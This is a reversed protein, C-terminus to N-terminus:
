PVTPQGQRLVAARGVKGQSPLSDNGVANSARGACLVNADASAGCRCIYGAGTFAIGRRRRRRLTCSSKQIRTVFALSMACSHAPSGDQRATKAHCDPPAARAARHSPHIDSDGQRRRRRRELADCVDM